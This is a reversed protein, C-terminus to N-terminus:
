CYAETQRHSWGEVQKMWYSSYYLDLPGACLLTVQVQAFIEFSVVSLSDLNLGLFEKLQVLLLVELASDLSQGLFKHVAVQQSKQVRVHGKQLKPLCQRDFV